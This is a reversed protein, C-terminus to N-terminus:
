SQWCLTYKVCVSSIAWVCLRRSHGSNMLLFLLQTKEVVSVSRCFCFRIGLPMCFLPLLIRHRILRFPLFSTFVQFWHPVICTTEENLMIIAMM